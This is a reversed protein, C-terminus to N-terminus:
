KPSRSRVSYMKGIQLYNKSSFFWTKRSIWISFVGRRGERQKKKQCIPLAEKNENKPEKWNQGEVKRMKREKGLRKETKDKGTWIWGVRGTKLPETRNVSMLSFGYFSFPPPPSCPPGSSLHALFYFSFHSIPLAYISFFFFIPCFPYLLPCSHLKQQNVSWLMYRYFYKKWEKNSEKM